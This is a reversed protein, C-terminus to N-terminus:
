PSGSDLPSFQFWRHFHRQEVSATLVAFVDDVNEQRYLFFIDECGPSDVAAVFEVDFGFSEAIGLSDAILNDGLEERPVRASQVAELRARHNM